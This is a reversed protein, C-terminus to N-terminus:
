RCQPLHPNRYCPSNSLEQYNSINKGEKTQNIEVPYAITPLATGLLLTIISVMKTLSFLNNSKSM